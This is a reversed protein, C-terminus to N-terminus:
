GLAKQHDQLGRLLSVLEAREAEGIAAFAPEVLRDTMEEAAAMADKAVEPDPWPQPWGFFEANTAGYRGSLVAQLPEVGHAAVAVLHSGGRLERAVQLALAAAAGDDAPDLTAALARWGAFVPLGTTGAAANVATLLEALRGAGDYSAFRATGYAACAGAYRAAAESPAIAARGKDWAKSQLAPPFFGFAAVVVSPDCDGLVGGRGVHYWAWADLGLEAGLAFTGADFMFAGGLRGVPGAAGRVAEHPTVGAGTM